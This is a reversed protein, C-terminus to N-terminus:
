ALLVRKVPNKKKKKKEMQFESGKFHGAVPQQYPYKLRPQFQSSCDV